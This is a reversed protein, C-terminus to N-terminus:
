LVAQMEEECEYKCSHRTEMLEGNGRAMRLSARLVTADVFLIVNWEYLVM